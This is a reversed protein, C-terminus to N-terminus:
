TALHYNIVCSSVNTILHKGSLVTIQENSLHFAEYSEEPITAFTMWTINQHIALFSLVALVYFRSLYTKRPVSAYEGSDSERGGSNIAEATSLKTVEEM